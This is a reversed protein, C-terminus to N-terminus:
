AAGGERALACEVAALREAVERGPHRKGAFQRRLVLEERLLAPVGLVRCDFHYAPYAPTPVTPSHPRQPNHYM